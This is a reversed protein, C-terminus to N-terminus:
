LLSLPCERPAEEAAAPDMAARMRDTKPMEEVNLVEPWSYVEEVHGKPSCRDCNGAYDWDPNMFSGGWQLFWLPKIQQFIEYNPMVGVETIAIFGNENLPQVNGYGTMFQADDTGAAYFDTGAFDVTGDAPYYQEAGEAGKDAGWVWIMNTIGHHNTIRDYTMAWLDAYQQKQGWWFWGGNMEHFPRFLLTIGQGAYEKLIEATADLDKLWLEHERTGPTLVRALEEDSMAYQSCEYYEGRPCVKIPNRAHWTFTVLGGRAAQREAHALMLERYGEYEMAFMLELGLVAPTQGTMEEIFDFSDCPIFVEYENVQQGSLTNGAAGVDELLAIVEDRRQGYDSIVPTTEVADVSSADSQSSNAPEACGATALIGLAAFGYSIRTLLRIM